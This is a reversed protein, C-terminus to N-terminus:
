RTLVVQCLKLYDGEELLLETSRNEEDFSIREYDRAGDSGDAGKQVTLYAYDGAAEVTYSGAALDTGVRYMGNTLVTDTLPEAENVSLDIAECGTLHLYDGEQLEIYGRGTIAGSGKLHPQEIGGRYVAYSGNEGLLQYEGAPLDFGAKYMNETYRGNEVAVPKAQEIPLAYGNSISVYQGDKIILYARDAVSFDATMSAISMDYANHLAVMVADADIATDDMVILYEGARMTEGAQYTGSPYVMEGKYEGTKAPVMLEEEPPLPDAPATQEIASETAAEQKKANQGSIYCFVFVFVALAAILLVSLVTRVTNKM